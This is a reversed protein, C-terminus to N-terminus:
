GQFKGHKDDLAGVRVIHPRVGEEAREWGERTKALAPTSLRIVEIPVALGAVGFAVCFAAAVWLFVASAAEERADVRVILIVLLRLM